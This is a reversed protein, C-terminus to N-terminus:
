EEEKRRCEEPIQESWPLLRDIAETDKLDIRRIHDLLYTLYESPVLGNEKASIVISYLIASSQAGRATNCFLWNKRGMVFPRIARESRNNSVELRVDLLSNRLAEKHNITYKLATQYLSKPMPKQIEEEAWAFFGEFAEGMRSRKFEMREEETLLKRCERDLHFIKDCWAIGEKIRMAHTSEKDKLGTLAEAYYRRAHALCGVHVIGDNVNGYGAYGDTQLYGRYDKLFTEPVHGARSGDGYHYLVIPAIGEGSRFMWMYSKSRQKDSLVKLTTEDAQIIDYSLLKEKMREYITRLYKETLLMMWNSLTAKGINVGYLKLDKSIKDLPDRNEYKRAIIYGGLSPSLVSGSLLPKRTQAAIITAETGNKECNRCSYIYQIHERVVAKAPIIEVERHIRKTMEHLKEGCVPCVQEEETLVYETPEAKRLPSLYAEKRGKQKGKRIPCAKEPKPEPQSPDAEQEAENFLCVQEGDDILNKESRQGFRKAQSSRFLEKYYELEASVEDLKKSTDLAFSELEEKTMSSFDVQKMHRNYWFVM